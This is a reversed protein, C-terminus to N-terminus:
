CNEYSYKNWPRIMAATEAPLRSAVELMLLPVAAITGTGKSWRGAGGGVKLVPQANFSRCGGRRKKKRGKERKRERERERSIATSFVYSLSSAFQPCSRLFLVLIICCCGGFVPLIARVCVCVERERERERECHCLRLAARRGAPDNLCCLRFTRIIYQSLATVGACGLSLARWLCGLAFLLIFLCFSALWVKM